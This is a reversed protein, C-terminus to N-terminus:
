CRVWSRFRLNWHWCAPPAPRLQMVPMPPPTPSPQVAQVVEHPDTPELAPGSQLLEGVTVFQYGRRALAPIIMRLAPGTAPANPGGHLHMMVIAGPKVQALVAAAVRYADPNFADLANVTWQVPILGAAHVADVAARDYCGGPFRFYRPTSGTIRQLVAQTHTVQWAAGGAPLGSLLYCPRHFAPHSYSHNALEFHPDAALSRALGPYLEAWMGTMFLTAHVGSSRLVSLADQNIWAGARGNQLEAAMQATMDLDFTLAVVTRNTVAGLVIRPQPTTVPTVAHRATTTTPEVRVLPWAPSTPGMSATPNVAAARNPARVPVVTVTLLLAATLLAGRRYM